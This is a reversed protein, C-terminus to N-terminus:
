AAADFQVPALRALEIMFLGHLHAETPLAERAEALVTWDAELTSLESRTDLVYPM